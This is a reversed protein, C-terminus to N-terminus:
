RVANTRGGRGGSSGVIGCGFFLEQSLLSGGSIPELVVALMWELENSDM